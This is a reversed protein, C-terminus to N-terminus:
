AVTFTEGYTDTKSERGTITGKSYQTVIRIRYTGAELSPIICAIKGPENVGIMEKTLKVTKSDDDTNEFYLGVDENDGNICINRGTINLFGGPTLSTSDRRNLETVSLIEPIVSNGQAIKPRIQSALEKLERGARFAIDIANKEPDFQATKGDFSGTVKAYLTGIGTDVIVGNLIRDIVASNVANWMDMIQSFSFDTLSGTARVDHAIEEMGIKNRFLTRAHYSTKGDAEKRMATPYLAVTLKSSVYDDAQRKKTLTNVNM